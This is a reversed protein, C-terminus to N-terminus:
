LSFNRNTNAAYESASPTNYYQDQNILSNSLTPLGIDTYPHDAYKFPRGNTYPNYSQAPNNNFPSVRTANAGYNDVPPIDPYPYGSNGGYNVTPPRYSPFNGGLGYFNNSQDFGTVGQLM